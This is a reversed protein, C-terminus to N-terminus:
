SFGPPREAQFKTEHGRLEDTLQARRKIGWAQEMAPEEKKPATEGLPVDRFTTERKVSLFGGSYQDIIENFQESHRITCKSSQSECHSILATATKFEKLCSPCRIERLQHRTQLHASFSSPADTHFNCEPMPCIYAEVVTNFFTEADFGTTSPDLFKQSFINMGASSPKEPQDSSPHDPGSQDARSAVPGPNRRAFDNDLNRKHEAFTAPTISPQDQTSPEVEGNFSTRSSAYPNSASSVSSANASPQWPSGRKSATTDINPSQITMDSLGSSVSWPASSNWDNRSYSTSTSTMGGPRRAASPDPRLPQELGADLNESDLLM